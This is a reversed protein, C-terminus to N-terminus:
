RLELEILALLHEREAEIGEDLRAALVPLRWEAVQATDVPALRQYHTLYRSAFTRRLRTILWRQVRPVEPPIAGDRLLFLTRAVDAAPPGAGATLWDIVVPGTATIVINGPHMDGHCIATADPLASLRRVSAEQAALSLHEASREIAERFRGKLEPLGAGDRGHMAAHMAAFNRAQGEVSWPQETLRDLMSPGDLRQYILGIRGDIRITGFFRPAAEVVGGVLEAAAAEATGLWDPFGPRILKVVRDDGYAYVEATRGIGVLQGLGTRDPTM